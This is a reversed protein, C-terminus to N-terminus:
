KIRERGQIVFLTLVTLGAMAPLVQLFSLISVFDFLSVFCFMLDFCTWNVQSAPFGREWPREEERGQSRPQISTARLSRVFHCCLNSDENQDFAKNKM